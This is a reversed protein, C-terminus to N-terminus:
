LLNADERSWGQMAKATLLKLQSLCPVARLPYRVQGTAAPASMGTTMVRRFETLGRYLLNRSFCSFLQLNFNASAWCYHSEGFRLLGLSPDSRRGRHHIFFSCISQKICYEPYAKHASPKMSLLSKSVTTPAKIPDLPVAGLSSRIRQEPEDKRFPNIAHTMLRLFRWCACSLSTDHSLRTFCQEIGLSTSGPHWVMCTLVLSAKNARNKNFNRTFSDFKLSMYSCVFHAILHVLIRAVPRAQTKVSIQIAHLPLEWSSWTCPSASVEM